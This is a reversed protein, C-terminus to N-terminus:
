FEHYLMVCRHQPGPISGKILLINKPLKGFGRISYTNLKNILQPNYKNIHEIGVYTRTTYGMGGPMPITPLVKAPTRSGGGRHRTKGARSHKRKKLTLGFRKISGVFGKGTTVGSLKVKSLKLYAAVVSEFKYDQKIYNQPLAWSRTIIKNRKASKIKAPMYNIKIVNKLNEKGQTNKVHVYKSYDYNQQGRVYEYSDTKDSLQYPIPAIITAATLKNSADYATVMGCKIAILPPLPLNKKMIAISPIQLRARSRPCYARSGKKFHYNKVM